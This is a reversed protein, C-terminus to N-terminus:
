KPVRQQIARVARQLEFPRLEIPGIVIASPSTGRRLRRLISRDEIPTEENRAKRKRQQKSKRGKIPYAM